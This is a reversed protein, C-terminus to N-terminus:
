NKPVNVTQGQNVVEGEFVEAPAPLQHPVAPAEVKPTLGLQAKRAALRDSVQLQQYQTEVDAETPTTIGLDENVEAVANNADITSNIQNRLDNLEGLPNNVEDSFESALAAAEKNAKSMELKIGLQECEKQANVIQTRSAKISNVQNQYQKNFTALQGATTNRAGEARQLAVDAETAMADNGGKLAVDVRAQALKVQKEDEALQRELRNVHGKFKALNEQGSKIKETAEDIKLRFVAVPDHSVFLNAFKNLMAKIGLLIKKLIM